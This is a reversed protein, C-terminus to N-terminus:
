ISTACGVEEEWRALGVSGRVAMGASYRSFSSLNINNYFFCIVLLRLAMCWSLLLLTRWAVWVGNATLVGEAYASPAGMNKDFFTGDRGGISQDVGSLSLEGAFNEPSFFSLLRLPRGHRHATPADRYDSPKACLFLVNGHACRAALGRGFPLVASSNVYPFASSRIHQLFCFHDYSSM